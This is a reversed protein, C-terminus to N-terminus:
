SFHLFLGLSMAQAERQANHPSPYDEILQDTAHCVIGSPRWPGEPVVERFVVGWAIARYSSAVTTSKPFCSRRWCTGMTRGKTIPLASRLRFSPGLPEFDLDFVGYLADPQVSPVLSARVAWGSSLFALDGHLTKGYASSPAGKDPTLELAWAGKLEASECARGPMTVPSSVFGATLILCAIATLRKM